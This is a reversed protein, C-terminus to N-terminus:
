DQYCRLGMNEMYLAVICDDMREYASATTRTPNLRASAAQAWCGKSGSIRAVTTACIVASAANVGLAVGVGFGVWVGVIVGLGVRVDVSAPIMSLIESLMTRM